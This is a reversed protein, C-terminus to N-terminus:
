LSEALIFLVMLISYFVSLGVAIWGLITYIPGCKAIEARRPIVYAASVLAVLPAACALLSVVFLSIVIRKMADRKNVKSSQRRLDERSMPDVSEFQTKCYRCRLAIAKIEEGCAPCQKNDGWASMPTGASDGQDLAPAQACGYSGCGGMESWCDRHHLQDCDSCTVCDEGATMATQCIPCKVPRDATIPTSAIAVGDATLALARKCSPCRLSRPKGDPPLRVNAGCDCILTSADVM